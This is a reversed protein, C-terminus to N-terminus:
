EVKKIVQMEKRREDAERDNIQITIKRFCDVAQASAALRESEYTKEYVSKLVNDTSWGGLYMIYKDPMGQAHLASASMKRLLHFKTPLGHKRMIRAYRSYLGKRTLPVIREDEREHSLAKIQECLEPSIQLTRISKPTKCYDRYVIGEATTLQTRHIHITHKEYDVDDFQIGLVEGIRMCGNLALACYVEIPSGRLAEFVDSLEPLDDIGKPKNKPLRIKKFNLFVDFFELTSKLLDYGSKVTRYSLGLAADANIARQIDIIQIDKIKIDHITQLRNRVIGRYTTLTTPEILSERSNIYETMAEAVTYDQTKYATYKAEIEEALKMLEWKTEASIRQQIRKGSEDRGLSVVATYRGSKQQTIKM